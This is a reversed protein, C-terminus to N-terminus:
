LDYTSTFEIVGQSIIYNNKYNNKYRCFYNGGNNIIKVDVNLNNNNHYHYGCAFSGSACSDMLNEIGKEYTKVKITNKNVIKYFNVNIGEPFLTTNYRIKQSLQKIILDSPWKKEYQIVFHKAGSDIYYGEINEIKIKESKYKPKSMSVKIVNDNHSINHYGDGCKINFKKKPYLNNLFLSSCIIGNVCLTEWSGDNNYYDMSITKQNDLIILGDTGYKKCIDIIIKNKNKIFIQNKKLSDIIIFTNGNANAKTVKIKM